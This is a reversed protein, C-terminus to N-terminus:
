QHIAQEPPNGLLSEHPAIHLSNRGIHAALTASHNNVHLTPPVGVIDPYKRSDYHPHLSQLYGCCLRKFNAAFALSPYRTAGGMRRPSILHRIHRAYCSNLTKDISDSGMSQLQNCQNMSEQWQNETTRVCGFASPM